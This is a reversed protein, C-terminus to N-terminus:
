ATYGGLVVAYKFFDRITIRRVSFPNDRNELESIYSMALELTGSVILQQIFLKAKTELEVRLQRQDDYPRNFCCNDLYVRQIGIV